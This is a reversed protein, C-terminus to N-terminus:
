KVVRIMKEAVHSFRTKDDDGSYPGQKVEIMVVDELVEFGHGGSCLLVLDGAELIRSEVYAKEQTYFDIRLRGQRILLVEQTYFIDRKVENHVHADIMKGKKHSMYALQQSFNPPTLFDVGECSYTNRVIIGLLIDKHTVHSIM